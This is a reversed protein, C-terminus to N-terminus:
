QGAPAQKTEPPTASELQLIARFYAKIQEEYQPPYDTGLFQRLRDEFHERDNLLDAPLSNPIYVPQQSASTSQRQETYDKRQLSRSAELMRSYIRLQRETTEPGAQGSTLDGEVKKMERGIDDLRGLVQRSNGFEKELEELSKRIAGQEGALRELGSRMKPDGGGPNNCAGQTQQNVQSQRNCLSELKAMGKDCSGAKDCNSQQNLSEMLRISARNLTSMAARQSAIANGGRKADMEQMAQAMQQNAQDILNNLEGAVFPSAKGLKDITNKLGSCSSMLDQQTAAMDRMAVSAPDMQAAEKLLDEQSKSLYNADDIAKRMARKIEDSNAGKMANQQNQMEGLMESLKRSAEKGESMSADKKQGSLSKSMNQMNQDATSKEVADAFKQAEQVQEMKADKIADRLQEVQKKLDQMAKTIDDENKSLSPLKSQESASTEDNSKKQKELLQEAQRTMADMKQEVQMRKLLQLTRDLRDMLEQQSLEFKKMADMIKQRDMSQLAEMLKRQAEKMEPTAVEEFLKQVQQLKEMIERSLVANEQLKQLSTDMQSALKQIDKVMEANKEAIAQLEKQQQWDAQNSAKEQSELKRAASKIRQVIDKGTQILQETNDIRAKSDNEMQSTIEELSPVRAIYSRTKTVKPGSIRDNDAVEFYYTAYDGPYLGLQEMDWNFSVEGETKITEPYHLVAVHEESQKGQASVTFKLVLSSFGFDDYIRLKVPLVMADTLNADFGPYLVDITPYEDPIATVYYEIPDPNTEGLHDQLRIHYSRSKDVVFSAEGTKASVSLPLRSSDNFILEAKDVLQNTEIKMNVRSGVIASLSGNNESITQPALRTYEPYFISLTINNVRPRDVVDVKQLDTKVRGAEVYYDFSKNIQRLTLGVNISDGAQATLRRASKLDFETKQWSGGALRYNLVAKTPLRQGFIAAGITVDKYKIWELSGPVAVIKYAIPPAIETVPNSYVEFSYSFFGPVLALFLLALAVAGVVFRGTRVIPSFSVVENFDILGSQRIAQLQTSEILERSYGPDSDMRAFQVAAILRGKLDPHKAELALAVQDISGGFLRGLAFRAFFYVAVAGSLTLLTLKLWVPLVMLNAVLSLAIWTAVVAAVTALLGALFLTVRQKALVAGLRSALQSSTQVKTM